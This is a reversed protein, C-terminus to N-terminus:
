REKVERSNDGRGENGNEKDNGMKDGGIDGEM